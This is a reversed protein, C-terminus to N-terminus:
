SQFATVTAFQLSETRVVANDISISFQRSQSWQLEQIETFYMYIYWSDSSNSSNTWGQTDSLVQATELVGIPVKYPNTSPNIELITTNSADKAGSLAYQLWIRDFDDEPYRHHVKSSGLAHRGFLALANSEFPYIENELLCLEIVFVFPIGSGANILCLQIYDRSPVYTVDRHHNDFGNSTFCFNTDIDVNFSPAVNRTDYNGYFFAARILYKNDKGQQPRLTYCNRTGIPFIRM